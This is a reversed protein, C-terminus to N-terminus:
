GVATILLEASSCTQDSVAQQGAKDDNTNNYKHQIEGFSYSGCLSGRHRRWVKGDTVIFGVGTGVESVADLLVRSGDEGGGVGSGEVFGGVTTVVAGDAESDVVAGVV